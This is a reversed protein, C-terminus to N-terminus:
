KFLNLLWDKKNYYLPADTIDVAGVISEVKANNIIEKTLISSYGVIYKINFSDLASQLKKEKILKEITQTRFVVISKNTLFNLDYPMNEPMAVAENDGINKQLIKEAYVKNDLAQRDDYIRGFVIHTSLTLNYVVILVLFILLIMEKKRNLTFNQSVMASLGSVGLALFMALVWGFDMLHSRQALTAFSLLLVAAGIWWLSLNAFFTARKRLWIFGLIMFLLIIPGGVEEMSVFRGLHRAMISLGIEGRELLNASAQGMNVAVKLNGIRGISDLANGQRLSNYENLFNERNFHFTYPDPYLHAYDGFDTGEEVKVDKENFFL